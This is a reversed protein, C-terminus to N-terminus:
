CLYLNGSLRCVRICKKICVPKSFGLRRLILISPLPNHFNEINAILCSCVFRGAGNQLYGADQAEAVTVPKVAVTVSFSMADRGAFFCASDRDDQLDQLFVCNLRFNKAM